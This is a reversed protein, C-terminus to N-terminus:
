GHHAEQYAVGLALGYRWVPHGFAVTPDPNGYRPRVDTVDGWPADGMTRIVSGEAV